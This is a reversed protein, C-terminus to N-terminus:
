LFSKISLPVYLLYFLPYSPAPSHPSFLSSPAFRPANSGLWLLLINCCISTFCASLLTNTNTDIPSRKMDCNVVYELFTGKRRKGGEERRMRREVSKMGVARCSVRCCATVTALKHCGRGRCKFGRTHNVMWRGQQSEMSGARREGSGWLQSANGTQISEM